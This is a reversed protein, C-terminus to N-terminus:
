QSATSCPDADRSFHRTREFLDPRERKLRALTNARGRDNTAADNLCSAILRQVGLARMKALTMPPGAPPKPSM